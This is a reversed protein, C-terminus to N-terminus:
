SPVPSESARRGKPTALIGRKPTIRTGVLSKFAEEHACVTFYGRTFHCNYCLVRYGEPFDNEILWRYFAAGGGIGLEKRHEGGNKEIHDVTLFASETVECGGPCMCRHGYHAVVIEKLDHRRAKDLENAYERNDKKWSNHRSRCVRCTKKGKVPSRGCHCLGLAKREARLNESAKSKCDRCWNELGDPHCRNKQFETLPKTLSCGSCYKEALTEM